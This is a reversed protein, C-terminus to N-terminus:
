GITCNTITCYHLKTSSYNKPPPPSLIVFLIKLGKVLPYDVPNQLLFYYWNCWKLASVSIRLLIAVHLTGWGMNAPPQKQPARCICFGQLCGGGGHAIFVPLGPTDQNSFIRVAQFSIIHPSM